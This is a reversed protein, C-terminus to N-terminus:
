RREAKSFKDALQAAETQVGYSYEIHSFWGGLFSAVVTVFMAVSIIVTKVKITKPEQPRLGDKNKSM